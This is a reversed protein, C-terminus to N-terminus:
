LYSAASMWKRIIKKSHFSENSTTVWSEEDGAVPGPLRWMMQQQKDNHHANATLSSARNRFKDSFRGSFKGDAGENRPTTPHRFLRAVSRTARTQQNISHLLQLSHDSAQQSQEYDIQM